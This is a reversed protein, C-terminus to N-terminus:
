EAWINMIFISWHELPYLMDGPHNLEILKFLRELEDKDRGGAKYCGGVNSMANVSEWILTIAIVGIMVPKKDAMPDAVDM